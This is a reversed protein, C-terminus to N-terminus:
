RCRGGCGVMRISWPEGNTWTVLGRNRARDGLDLAAGFDIVLADALEQWSPPRDHKATLRVVAACFGIMMPTTSPALPKGCKKCSGDHRSRM